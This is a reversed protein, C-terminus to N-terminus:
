AEAYSKLLDLLLQHTRDTDMRYIIDVKSHIEDFGRRDCILAGDAMGGSCDVHALENRMEVIMSEDLMAAVAAYDYMCDSDVWDGFLIKERAIFESIENRIFHSVKNDIAAIKIIENADYMAGSECGELPNLVVHAGCNLVIEAAEPDDYFNAEAIPTRNGKFLGGGMIYITDIHEAIDPAMTLAVGLNTLPGVACINITEKANRLTDVLYSCAHMDEFTRTTEPLPLIPEHIMIVEGDVEKRITEQITNANRGKFLHRVMPQGCGKYVPIDKNLFSVLRLANETTNCVPQNGHTATIGIVEFRDSLLLATLAVADDSGIDTDFIVKKREM